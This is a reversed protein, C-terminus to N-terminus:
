DGFVTLQNSSPYFPYRQASSYVGPTLFQKNAAAFDFYWWHSRDASQFWVSVGNAYNMSANLTGDASTFYLTRGASIYDGPDGTLLMSTVDARAEAAFLLVFVTILGLRRFTHLM